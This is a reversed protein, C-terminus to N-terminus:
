RKRYINYCMKGVFDIPIKVLKQVIEEGQKQINQLPQVKLRKVCGQEPSRSWDIMIYYKPKEAM